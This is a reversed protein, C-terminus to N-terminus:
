PPTKGAITLLRDRLEIALVRRVSYENLGHQYAVQRIRGQQVDTFDAGEVYEFAFDQIEYDREGAQEVLTGALKGAWEEAGLAVSVEKGLDTLVLPSAPKAVGGGPTLNRIADMLRGESRQIRAGLRREVRDIREGTRTEVKDTRGGLNKWIALLGASLAVFAAVGGWMEGTM